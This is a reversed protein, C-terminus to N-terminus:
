FSFVGDRRHNVDVNHCYYPPTKWFICQFNHFVLCLWISSCTNLHPKWEHITVWHSIPSHTLRDFNQHSLYHRLDLSKCTVTLWAWPHQQQAQDARTWHRRCDEQKHIHLLGATLFLSSLRTKHCQNICKCTQHKLRNREENQGDQRRAVLLLTGM